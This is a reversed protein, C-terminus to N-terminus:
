TRGRRVVVVISAVIDLYSSGNAQSPEVFTNESFDNWSILGIADPKSQTAAALSRKLTDGDRRPVTRTGGLLTADFGPAAPAIWLGGNAHVATSFADLKTAYGSDGLPDASSWYYLNGDM